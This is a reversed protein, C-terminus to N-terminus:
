TKASAPVPANCAGSAPDFWAAVAQRDVKDNANRPMAAIARIETPIAYRDVVSALAAQL